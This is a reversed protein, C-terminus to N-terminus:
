SVPAVGVRLPQPKLSEASLQHGPACNDDALAARPDLGSQVNATAFVVREEGLDRSADLEEVLSRHPLKHHDLGLSDFRLLATIQQLPPAQGTKKSVAPSAALRTEVPFKGAEAERRPKKAAAFGRLQEAPCGLAATGVHNVQMNMSSALIRTLAPSPPLPQMANRRSFNTGRPPGEPPSPPLPPSMQISDLSRWLVSTCKRKLGSYLASRPRCPSPAFFVPRSPSPITRFTGTPVITKSSSVPSFTWSKERASSRTTIARPPRPPRPLAWNAVDVWWAGRSCSTPRGPSSRLKRRSNFSSASTPNTPYGFTPLDVSIERM